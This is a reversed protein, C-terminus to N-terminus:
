DGPGNRNYDDALSGHVDEHFLISTRITYAVLRDLLRSVRSSPTGGVDIRDPVVRMMSLPLLQGVVYKALSKKKRHILFWLMSAAIILDIGAGASLLTALMPKHKLVYGSISDTRVAEVAAYISVGCRMVAMLGAFIGIYKWPHYLM